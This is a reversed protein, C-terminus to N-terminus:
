PLTIEALHRFGIARGCDPCVRYHVRDTGGMPTEDPWGWWGCNDIDCEAIYGHITKM